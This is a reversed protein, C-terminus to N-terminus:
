ELGHQDGNEDDIPYGVPIKDPVPAPPLPKVVPWEMPKPPGFLERLLTDDGITPHPSTKRLEDEDM